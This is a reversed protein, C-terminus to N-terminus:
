LTITIGSFGVAAAALDVHEGLQKLCGGISTNLIPGCILAGKETFCDLQYMCHGLKNLELILKM